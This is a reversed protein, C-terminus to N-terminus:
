TQVENFSENLRDDLRNPFELKFDGRDFADFSAQTEKDIPEANIKELNAIVQLVIARQKPTLEQMQNKPEDETSDDEWFITVKKNKPPKVFANNFVFQEDSQFYGQYAQIQAM